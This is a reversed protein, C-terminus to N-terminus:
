ATVLVGMCFHSKYGDRFMIPSGCQGNSADVTTGIRTADSKCEAAPQFMGKLKNQNCDFGIVGVKPDFVSGPQIVFSLKVDAFESDLGNLEAIRGFVLAINEAENGDMYRAKVM